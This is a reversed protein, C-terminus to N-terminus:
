DIADEEEEAARAPAAGAEVEVRFSQALDKGDVSLVARYSGAPVFPRLPAGLGPRGPRGGKPPRAGAAGPGRALDWVVRHLGPAPSVPMQAVVNGDVDLVRLRASGAERPLSYYIPAGAPPNQGVFRRGSQGRSPQTRWRVATSPKYLVPKDRLVEPAMQRLPAIDLAWLSRGHTAAVMEGVTPHIAFEHVAVTPLNSNLRAWAAGRNLSVWAGFETGVFLLNPNRIDERLVRTSGWPLNSTLPAWTKGYDETAFVYPNDDDSRHADFVVYARGEEFRSAEISAVWRPGPLPVNEIISTWKAGGDRSVWLAGDDTGVYLVNPDRPSEALATASGRDTRTIKPSIARLDNGRDLSRFVYNGACYYIKSNRSSLIFPSNWNFRLRAGEPGRPRLRVVEGTRLHRRQFAGNQAEFYILDPDNPDVRCVFGDGGGIRVWDENTPGAPTRTRSPGGWTGNDQLGGYAHYRPRADIAVHYFQGLALNNHHEWNRTRDYSVYHGGDTGVILHRGDRPNIWLAHQDAHIGRVDSRFTKGGDSSRAMNVGLVYLYREDSPDVRVQSFYMPRPNLSNIRAWSEGGDTSKYVGGYQYGERGQQEQANAEQGGLIASYPRKPDFKPGGKGKKGGGAPRAALALEVEAEKGGRRLKVKVKEGVKRERLQGTLDAYVKVPKNGLAVIVDDVKVGAKDAPGGEAVRTVVVGLDEVDTGFLGAYAIQPRARPPGMGIKESEVVAFVTKPSKRYYDLGIRGLNCTPLGKTLKKFTKGGDATKYVGSGPGWKKAPDNVDFGDRQREYTAVLLTQPDGPHMALDIVGTKDDVFLVRAWTKGGDTTKYLGREESPGYLRGLAGVYVVDPDRPHIVIKGIQFSKKLGVNKWTKGGDTSKYVGDGYSASNRPNNEGTGVWVVNRDSPAVCVDGLSVTAERDFQHEFTTGNNTTKLLGGSATAIWYTSPDAEFVSVATIRGGMNAPGICRWRLARFWEASLAAAPQEAPGAKPPAAPRAPSWDPLGLLGAVLFLALPRFLSRLSSM